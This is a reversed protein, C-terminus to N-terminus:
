VQETSTMDVVISESIMSKHTFLCAIRNPIVEFSQTQDNQYLHTQGDIFKVTVQENEKLNIEFVTPQALLKLQEEYDSLNGEAVSYLKLQYDGHSTIKLQDQHRYWDVLSGYVYGDEAPYSTVALTMRNTKPNYHGDLFETALLDEDSFTIPLKVVGPIIYPSKLVRVLYLPKSGEIKDVLVDSVTIGHQALRLTMAKKLDVHRNLTLARIRKVRLLDRFEVPRFKLERRRVDKGKRDTTFPGPPPLIRHEISFKVVDNFESHIGVIKSQLPRLSHIHFRNNWIERIIAQQTSTPM